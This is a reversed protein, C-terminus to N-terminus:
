PNLLNDKSVLQLVPLSTVNEMTITPHPLCCPSDGLLNARLRHLTFDKTKKIIGQKRDMSNTIEKRDPWFPYM